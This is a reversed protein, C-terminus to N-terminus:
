ATLAAPGNNWLDPNHNKSNAVQYHRGTEQVIRQKTRESMGPEEAQCHCVPDDPKPTIVYYDRFQVFLEGYFKWWKEHLKTGALVSFQTVFAVAATANGDDRQVLDLAKADVLKVQNIFDQTSEDIRRRVIPYVKDWQWYCLNSVMNQVWFAQDVNFQLIPTVVGDQSGQGAYPKAIIRSSGYVPVRPSTSSDDVAFWLLASLELPMWSRLQAIFNWGTKATAVNRENHYTKNQYQWVLPRPRYPSEFLGGGVDTSSDLYTGEYHSNMAHAVDM